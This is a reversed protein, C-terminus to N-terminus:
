AGITAKFKAEMREHLKPALNRNVCVVFGYTKYGYFDQWCDTIRWLKDDGPWYCTLGAGDMKSVVDTLTTSEWHGQWDHQFTVYRSRAFTVTGDTLAPTSMGVHVYDKIEHSLQADTLFIDLTKGSLANSPTIAVGTQGDQSPQVGWKTKMDDSMFGGGNCLLKPSKLLDTKVGEDSLIPALTDEVKGCDDGFQEGLIVGFFSSTTNVDNLAKHSEVMERGFEADIWTAKHAKTLQSTACAQTYPQGRCADGVMGSAKIKAYDDETCAPPKALKSGGVKSEVDAVVVAPDEPPPPPTPTPASTPAPTGRLMVITRSPLEQIKHHVGAEKAQMTLDAGGFVLLVSVLFKDLIALSRWFGVVRGCCGVAADAASTEGRVRLHSTASSRAKRKQLCGRCCYALGGGIALFILGIVTRAQWSGPALQFASSSTSASEGGEESAHAEQYEVYQGHAELGLVFVVAVVLAKDLLALRRFWGVLGFCKADHVSKESTGRAAASSQAAATSSTSPKPPSPASGSGSAPATGGAAGSSGAKRGALNVIGGSM